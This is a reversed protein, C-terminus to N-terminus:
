ASENRSVAFGGAVLSGFIIMSFGFVGALVTTNLDRGLILGFSLPNVLLPFLGLLAGYLLATFFRGGNQVAAYGVWLGFSFQVLGLVPPTFFNHIEPLTAELVFHLLGAIFVAIFPWKLTKGLM